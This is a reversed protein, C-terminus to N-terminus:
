SRILVRFGDVIPPETFYLLVTNTDERVVGGYVTTGNTTDYIDVTVDFSGLNHIVMFEVDSNNGIYSRYTNSTSGGGSDLKSWVENTSAAATNGVFLEPYLSDITLFALHKNLSPEGLLCGVGNTPVEDTEVGIDDWIITGNLTSPDVATVATLKYRHVVGSIPMFTELDSAPVYLIFGVQVDFAGNGTADAQNNYIAGEFTYEGPVGTAAFASVTLAASIPRTM